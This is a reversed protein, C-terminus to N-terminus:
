GCLAKKLNEKEEDSIEFFTIAEDFSMGRQIMRKLVLLREQERGEEREEQGFDEMIKCMSNVGELEKKYYGAEQSLIPSYMDDPDTCRFDHMMAGIPDDGRYAGNVYLIHADDGFLEGTERVIRDIHYLALGRKLVDSETIFIVYTELLDGYSEGQISINADLVASNYRARKPIAGADARQVEINYAKGTADYALIDFCVSRGRMNKQLDQTTVSVVEITDNELVTRILYQTCEKNQFVMTMLTDDM